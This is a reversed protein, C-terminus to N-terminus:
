PKCYNERNPDIPRPMNHEDFLDFMANMGNELKYEIEERYMPVAWLFDVIDGNECNLPKVDFTPLFLFASLGTGKGLPAYEAGNPITHGTGFWTKYEHPFRALFRIWSLPWAYEEPLDSGLSYAQGIQWEAPLYMILERRELDKRGKLQDPLTMPLDSMGTTYLVYYNRGDHPALVHVDIHVLDSLIEHYILEGGEATPYVEAIHREIEEIHDIMAPPTWERKDDDSYTMVDVTTGDKAKRKFINQIFGM